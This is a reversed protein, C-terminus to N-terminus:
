GEDAQVRAESQKPKTTPKGYKDTIPNGQEDLVPMYATIEHPMPPKM